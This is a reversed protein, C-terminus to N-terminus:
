KKLGLSRKIQKECNKKYFMGDIEEDKIESIVHTWPVIIKINKTM